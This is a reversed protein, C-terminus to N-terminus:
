MGKKEENYREVREEKLTTMLSEQLLKLKSKKGTHHFLPKQFIPESM